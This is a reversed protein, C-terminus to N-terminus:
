NPSFAITCCRQLGEVIQYLMEGLLSAVVVERQDGSQVPHGLERKFIPSKGIRYGICYWWRCRFGRFVGCSLLILILLFLTVSFLFKVSFHDLLQRRRLRYLLNRQLYVPRRFRDRRVYRFLHHRQFVIIVSGDFVIGLCWLNRQIHFTRETFRHEIVVDLQHIMQEFMRVVNRLIRLQTSITQRTYWGGIIQQLM